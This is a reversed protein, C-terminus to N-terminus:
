DYRSTRVRLGRWRCERDKCQYRRVPVFLNAARDRWRRHIRALDGGCRPCKTETFRPQTMLRQRTRWIVLGAVVFLLVYATLDSLTTRRAFDTLSRILGTVLAELREFLGVLWAFLTQRINMREVLLFVALIVLLAILIEVWWERWVRRIRAPLHNSEKRKSRRRRGTSSPSPDTAM